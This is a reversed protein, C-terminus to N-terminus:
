KGGGGATNKKPPASVKKLSAEFRSVLKAKDFLAKKLKQKTAM